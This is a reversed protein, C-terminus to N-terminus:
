WGPIRPRFRRRGKWCRHCGASPRRGKHPNIGRHGDADVVLPLESQRIIQRILNKTEAAQGLGPGIALCKKGTMENQIPELASDGLMGHDSEPLPVTMAEMMQGELGANLSEAVALTVLGAGTESLVAAMERQLSASTDNAGVGLANRLTREVGAFVDSEDLQCRILAALHEREGLVRRLLDAFKDEGAHVVATQLAKGLAGGTDNAAESLVADIAERLASDREEDTFITFSPPVGAELPFRRLVRDCFAHITMIKLGGPADLM